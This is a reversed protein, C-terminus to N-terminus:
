IRKWYTVLAVKSFLKQSFFLFLYFKVVLVVSYM